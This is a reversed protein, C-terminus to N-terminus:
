TTISLSSNLLNVGFINFDALVFSWVRLTGFDLQLESLFGAVDSSQHRFPLKM